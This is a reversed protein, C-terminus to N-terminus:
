SNEKDIVGAEIMWKASDVMLIAPKEEGVFVHCLEGYGLMSGFRGSSDSASFDMTIVPPPEPMPRAIEFASARALTDRSAMM